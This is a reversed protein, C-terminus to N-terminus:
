RMWARPQGTPRATFCRGSTHSAMTASNDSSVPALTREQQARVPRGLQQKSTPAAGIPVSPVTSYTGPTGAKVRHNMLDAM